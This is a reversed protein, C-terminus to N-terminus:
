RWWLDNFLWKYSIVSLIKMNEYEVDIQENPVETTIKLCSYRWEFEESLTQCCKRKRPLTSLQSKICSTKDALNTQCTETRIIWELWSRDWNSISMLKFIRITTLLSSTSTFAFPQCHHHGLQYLPRKQCWLYENLSSEELWEEGIDELINKHKTQILMNSGQFIQQTMNSQMRM